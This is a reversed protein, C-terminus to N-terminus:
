HTHGHLPLGGAMSSLKIQQTGKTVVRDGPKLGASIEANLGDTGAITVEQKIFSEGQEEIYVYFKGQEEVLASYPVVIAKEKPNTMLYTELFMGPILSGNNKVTFTVPIRLSNAGVFANSSKVRGNLSSLTFVSEGSPDRFNADFIGPVLNHDSQNVFAEILLDSSNTVRAVPVGAEIIGGNETKIESIIGDVPSVVKLSNGSIKDNVQYYRISDQKYRSIIELNDKESIAQGQILPRTREYDAKSKEWNIRYENLRASLNNEFSGGSVTAIVEGKKIREGLVKLFSIQGASQSSILIEASPQGKVRASTSIVTHFPKYTIEETAFTTKWAQEKLYVIKDGTSEPAASPIESMAQYVKLSDITISENVQENRFNFTLTYIGPKDPTIVPRFIGPVSPSDVKSTYQNSGNRLIVELSGSPFPKFNVVDNLHAAFPTEQGVIFPRFEAFLEVNKTFITYTLPELSNYGPGETTETSKQRCSILCASFLTLFLFKKM